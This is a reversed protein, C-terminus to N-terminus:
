EDLQVVPVAYPYGYPIYSYPLSSFTYPVPAPSAVKYTFPKYELVPQVYKLAPLALEQEKTIIELKTTDAPTAAEVPEYQKTEFTTKAVTPVVQLYPLPLKLSEVDRRRRRAEVAPIVETDAESETVAEGTAESEQWVYPFETTKLTAGYLYTYPTAFDYNLPTFLSSYPYIYQAGAAVVKNETDGQPASILNESPLVWPAGYPVLQASCCTVAVLIM